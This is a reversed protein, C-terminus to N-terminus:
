IEGERQLAGNKKRTYGLVKLSHFVANVSVGLVEALEKLMMDPNNEVLVVLQDRDLKRSGRPGPKDHVYDRGQKIWYFVSRLSVQFRRAAEAKGGGKEVFDLVRSRIDSSCRM